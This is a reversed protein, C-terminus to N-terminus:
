TRRRGLGKRTLTSCRLVRAPYTLVRPPLRQESRSDTPTDLRVTGARSSYWDGQEGERRMQPQGDGGLFCSLFLFSTPGQTQEEPGSATPPFRYRMLVRHRHVDKSIM